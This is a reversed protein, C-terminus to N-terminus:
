EPTQFLKRSIILQLSRCNDSRRVKIPEGARGWSTRRHSLICARKQGMLLVQLDAGKGDAQDHDTDSPSHPTAQPDYLRPDGLHRGSLAGRRGM